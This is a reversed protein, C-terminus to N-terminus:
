TIIIAKPITKKPESVEEALTAIRAYGTFAFFLLAAAEAIGTIGFPAFPKFNDAKVEPLGSLSLYLLSLLTVSVIVLNLIGAKKIGFYNALTLSIIALVSFSMPSGIPVLQYFYSGFGIAVVG